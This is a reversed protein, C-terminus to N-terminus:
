QNDDKDLDKTAERYQADKQSLIFHTAALAKPGRTVADALVTSYKGFMQPNSKIAQELRGMGRLGKQWVQPNTVVESTGMTIAALAGRRFYNDGGPRKATEFAKNAAIDQAAELTDPRFLRAAAEQQAGKNAGYLNSIMSEARGENTASRLLGTDAKFQAYAQNASDIGPDVRDLIGDATGRLQKLFGIFPGTGEQDYKGALREVHDLYERIKVLDEGNIPGDLMKQLDMLDQRQTKSIGSFGAASPKNADLFEGVKQSLVGVDYINEGKIQLFKQKASNVNSGLQTGLSETDHVANKGIKFAFDDSEAAATQMPRQIQRLAADEDVGSAFQAAKSLIRNATPSKQAAAQMVRDTLSGIKQIGPAIVKEGVTQMGAGLGFGLATDSALGQASTEDSLGFGSLAGQAGSTLVRSGISKGVAGPTALSGAIEGTMYIAPNKESSLKNAARSEDRNKVYANKIDDLSKEGSILNIAADGILGVSSTLPSALRSVEELQSADDGAVEKLAGYAGALEDSLGYSVGQGTGRMASEYMGAAKQLDLEPESSQSKSAYKDWPNASQYKEWPGSM